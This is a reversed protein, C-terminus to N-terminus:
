SGPTAVPLARAERALLSDLAFTARANGADAELADLYAERAGTADGLFRELLRGRELAWAARRRGRAEERELVELRTVAERTLGRGKELEGADFAAWADVTLRAVERVARASASAPRGEAPKVAGDTFRTPRERPVAPTTAPPAGPEPRPQALAFAAPLLLLLAVAIARPRAPPSPRSRSEEPSM